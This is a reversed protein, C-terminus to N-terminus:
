FRMSARIGVQRPMSTAAVLANSIPHYIMFEPIRRGEDHGADEPASFLSSIVPLPGHAVFEDM